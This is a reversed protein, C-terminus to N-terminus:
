KESIHADKLARGFKVSPSFSLSIFATFCCNPEILCVTKLIRVFLLITIICYAIVMAIWLGGDSRACGVPKDSLAYHVHLCRIRGVFSCVLCMSYTYYFVNYLGEPRLSVGPSCLGMDSGGLLAVLPTFMAAVLLCPFLM